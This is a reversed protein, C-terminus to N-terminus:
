PRAEVASQNIEWLIRLGDLTLRQDIIDIAETERAIQEVLGGTGIVRCEGMEDKFRRILGEVLGVYGFLIGSQVNTITNKGIASKPRTLDVRFLRAARDFLAQMSIDIGPAIAGGLFDGDASVADFTTATGFDIVIAPGGYRRHSAVTNAIRDAGVERPNEVLLRVGTRIGPGVVIPEARLYERALDSLTTTLTPVVSGICVDNLQDIPIGAHECLSRLIVAHEDATRHPETRVRWITPTEGGDYVGFVVHTNGVDIALLM